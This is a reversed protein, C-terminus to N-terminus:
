VLIIQLDRLNQNNRLYEIIQKTQKKNPKFCYHEEYPKSHERLIKFERSNLNYAACSKCGKLSCRYNMNYNKIEKNNGFYNYIEGNESKHFHTGFRKNEGIIKQEIETLLSKHKIYKDKIEIYVENKNIITQHFIANNDNEEKKEDVNIIEENNNDESSNIDNRKEISEIIFKKSNKNKIKKSTNKNNSIKFSIFKNSKFREILFKISNNRKKNLFLMSNNNSDNVVSLNDNNEVKKINDIIKKTSDSYIEINKIEPNDKMYNVLEKIRDTSKDTLYIHKEISLSHDEYINIENTSYNYSAKSKCNKDQCRMWVSFFSKQSIFRYIYIDNENKRYIVKSIIPRQKKNEKKKKITNIKVNDIKDNELKLNSDLTSQVSDNLAQFSINDKNGKINNYNIIEEDILLQTLQDIDANDVIKKLKIELEKNVKEKENEEKLLCSIIDNYSYSNLLEIILEKTSINNDNIDIKEKKLTDEM